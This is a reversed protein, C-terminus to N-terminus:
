AARKQLVRQRRSVVRWAPQAAPAAKRYGCQLCVLEVDGLIEEAMLDGGCRNCAKLDIM